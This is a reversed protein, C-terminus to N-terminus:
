VGVIVMDRGAGHPFPSFSLFVTGHAHTTAMVSLYSHAYENKLENRKSQLARM